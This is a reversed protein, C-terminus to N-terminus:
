AKAAAARPQRKRARKSRKSKPEAKLLFIRFLIVLFHVRAHMCSAGLERCAHMCLVQPKPNQATYPHPRCFFRVNFLSPSVVVLHIGLLLLNLGM